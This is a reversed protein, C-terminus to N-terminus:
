RRDTPAAHHPTDLTSSGHTPLADLRAHMVRFWLPPVTALMLCGAYGTPLQPGPLAELTPYPKWAHMHHDSHRQLNAIMCNTLWHDANWAHMVGFPERKGNVEARSLGYHEIYNITELLFIAYVSQVLWFLLAAPGFVAVLFVLWVALALTVWMLASRSWGRRLQRLQRAELAWASRLSGALTRPLFRWLSEGRRASAPDAHTAARPHHGRYHEVMFHSYNVSAMLAWGLARDVRSRSHGLEHAYTIGQAGTVSGVGIGLAVVVWLGLAATEPRTAVWLGIGLLVAQLVVHSRLVTSFWRSPAVAPLSRNAGPLREALALAVQFGGGAAWAAWPAMLAAAGVALPMLWALAFRLSSASFHESFHAPVPAAQSTSDPLDTETSM